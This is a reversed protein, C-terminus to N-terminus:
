EPVSPISAQLDRTGFSSGELEALADREEKVRREIFAREYDTLPTKLLREYREINARRAFLFVQQAASQGSM